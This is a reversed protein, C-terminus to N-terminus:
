ETEHEGVEVITVSNSYSGVPAGSEDPNHEVRKQRRLHNIVARPLHVPTDYKVQKEFRNFGIFMYPNKEGPPRQVICRVMERMPDGKAAAPKPPESRVAAPKPEVRQARAKPTAKSKAAKAAAAAPSEDVMGAAAAPSPTQNEESM